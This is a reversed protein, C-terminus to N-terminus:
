IEIMLYYLRLKFFINWLSYTQDAIHLMCCMFNKVADHCFLHNVRFSPAYQKTTTREMAVTMAIAPTLAPAAAGPDLVPVVAPIADTEPLDLGTVVFLQMLVTIQLSSQVPVAVV